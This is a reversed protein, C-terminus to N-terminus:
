GPPDLSNLEVILPAPGVRVVAEFFARLAERLAVAEAPDKCDVTWSVGPWMRHQGLVRRFISPQIRIRITEGPKQEAAAELIPEDLREVDKSYSMEM